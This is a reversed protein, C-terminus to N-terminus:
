ELARNSEPEGRLVVEGRHDGRRGQRSKRRVSCYTRGPGWIVFWKKAIGCFFFTGM